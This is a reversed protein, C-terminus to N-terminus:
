GTHWSVLSEMGVGILTLYAWIIALLMFALIWGKIFSKNPPLISYWSRFLQNPNTGEWVARFKPFLDQIIGNLTRVGKQPDGLAPFGWYGQTQKRIRQTMRSLRSSPRSIATLSLYTNLVSDPATALAISTDREGGHELPDPWFPSKKIDQLITLASSASVLTVYPSTQRNQPLVWSWLPRRSIIKAADEIATLQKPGLHGSFCVFHYFGMRKLSRCTDILWDRLVHSRVTLALRQTNTEVGLPAAPMLIGTWGPLDSELKEASMRCLKRAELLDLGMPLHPGHDELPGVSFFFVTQHSPLSELTQASLTEFELPM